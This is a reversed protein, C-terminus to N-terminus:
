DLYTEVNENGYFHPLDVRTDKPNERRERRVRRPQPQYYENIKLSEGDYSDSL